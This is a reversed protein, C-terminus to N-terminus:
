LGGLEDEFREIARKNTEIPKVILGIRSSVELINRARKEAALELLDHMQLAHMVRTTKAMGPPRIYVAGEIIGEGTNGDKKCVIPTDVFEKVYIALFTYGNRYKVLCIDLKVYPSAYKNTVDIITDVKYTKLHEPMIGTLDWTQNRESAGIIIIGGDRLNGMGLSTKIIRWKLTEWPESEKFDIGQDEICRDLANIVQEHLKKHGPMDSTPISSM